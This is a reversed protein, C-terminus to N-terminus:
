SVQILHDLARKTMPAVEHSGFIPFNPSPDRARSSAGAAGAAGAPDPTTGSVASSSSTSSPHHGKRSSATVAATSNGDCAAAAPSDVSSNNRRGKSDKGSTSSSSSSTKAVSSGGTGGGGREGGGGGVEVEMESANNSIGSEGDLELVSSLPKRSPQKSDEDVMGNTCTQKLARPKAQKRRSMDSGRLVVRERALNKTM